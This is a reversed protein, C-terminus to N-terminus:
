KPQSILKNLSSTLTNIFNEKTKLPLLDLSLFPNYDELEMLLLTDETTRCADVRQIGHKCSNWQIFRVAFAIDEASAEYPKLVWRKAPDPAYLAYQFADGIFYFSVEYQFDTLPQILLNTCSEKQLEDNDVIKVGQSDAGNLPKLLYKSYRKTSILSNREEASYTPIVPYGATFLERLHRKGVIDGKGKLDNFLKLDQRLKLVDLEKQHTIQPGTNRLLVADFSNVFPNFDAIHSIAVNFSKRLLISLEVDERYYERGKAEYSFDTVLLLNKKM